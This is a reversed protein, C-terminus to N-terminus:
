PSSEFDAKAPLAFADSLPREIYNLNSQQPPAVSLSFAFDRISNRYGGVGESRRAHYRGQSQGNNRHYRDGECRGPRGGAAERYRNLYRLFRVNCTLIKRNGRSVQKM